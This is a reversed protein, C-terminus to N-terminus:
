LLWMVVADGRDCPISFAFGSSTLCCCLEQQSCRSSNLHKGLCSVVHVTCELALNRWFILNIPPPHTNIKEKFRERRLSALCEGHGSVLQVEGLWWWKWPSRLGPGCWSRCLKYIMTKFLSDEVICLFVGFFCSHLSCRADETLFIYKNRNKM